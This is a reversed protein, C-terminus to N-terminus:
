KSLDTTYEYVAGKVLEKKNMVSMDIYVIEIMRKENKEKIKGFEKEGISL